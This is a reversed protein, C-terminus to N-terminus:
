GPTVNTCAAPKPCPLGHAWRAKAAHVIHPVPGRCRRQALRCRVSVRSHVCAGALPGGAAGAVVRWWRDREPEQRHLDLTLPHLPSLLSFFTSFPLCAMAARRVVSSRATASPRRSPREARRQRHATLSAPSFTFPSPNCPWAPLKTGGFHFSLWRDSRVAVTAQRRRRDSPSWEALRASLALRKPPRAIPQQAKPGPPRSVITTPQKRGRASHFSTFLLNILQKLSNWFGKQIFNQIFKTYNQNRSLNFWRSIQTSISNYCFHKQITHKEHIKNM